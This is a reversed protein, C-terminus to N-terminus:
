AEIQVGGEVPKAFAGPPKRKPLGIMGVCVALRERGLAVDYKVVKSAYRVIEFSPTCIALRHV